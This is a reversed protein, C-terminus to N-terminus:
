QSETANEDETADGSVLLEYTIDDFTACGGNASVLQACIKATGTSGVTTLRTFNKIYAGQWDNFTITGDSNTDISNM